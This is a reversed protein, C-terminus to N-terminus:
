RKKTITHLDDPIADLTRPQRGTGREVVHLHLSYDDTIRRTDRDKIQQLKIDLRTLDSETTLIPKLLGAFTEVFEPTGSIRIESTPSAFTSGKSGYRKPTISGVWDDPTPEPLGFLWQMADEKSVNGSTSKKLSELTTM